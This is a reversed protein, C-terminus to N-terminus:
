KKRIVRIGASAWVEREEDDEIKLLGDVRSDHTLRADTLPNSSGTNRWANELRHLYDSEAQAKRQPANRAWDAPLQRGAQPQVSIHRPNNM